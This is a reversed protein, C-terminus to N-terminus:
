RHKKEINSQVSIDYDSLMAMELLQKRKLFKNYKKELPTPKDTQAM